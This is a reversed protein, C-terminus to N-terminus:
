EINYYRLMTCIASLSSSPGHGPYVRYSGDLACLRALSAKLKSFDGGYLDCRGFGQAMVTDGTFLSENILFSSSGPTHGPTHIVHVSFPGVLVCEGDRLLYDCSGLDSPCNVLSSVNKYPDCLLPNDDCGIYTPACTM